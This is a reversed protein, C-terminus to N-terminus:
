FSQHVARAFEAATYSGISSQDRFCHAVFHTRELMELGRVPAYKRAFWSICKGCRILVCVASSALASTVYNVIHSGLVNNFTASACERIDAPLVDRDYLGTHVHMHMCPTHRPNGYGINYPNFGNGATAAAAEAAALREEATAHSHGDGTKRSGGRRTHRRSSSAAADDDGGNEVNATDDEAADQEVVEDVDEPEPAVIDEDAAGIDDNADNDEEDDTKKRRGIRCGRGGGGSSPKATQKSRGRAGGEGATNRKVPLSVNGPVYVGGPGRTNCLVIMAIGIWEMFKYNEEVSCINDWYKRLNTTEQQNTPTAAQRAAHATARATQPPQTSPASSAAASARAGDEKGTATCGTQPTSAATVEATYISAAVAEANLNVNGEHNYGMLYMRTSSALMARNTCELQLMNAIRSIDEIGCIFDPTFASTTSTSSAKNHTRKKAPPAKSSAQSHTTETANEPRGLVLGLFKKRESVWSGMASNRTWVGKDVIAFLLFPIFEALAEGTTEITPKPIRVMHYPHLRQVKQYYLCRVCPFEAWIDSSQAIDEVVEADPHALSWKRTLLLHVQRMADILATETQKCTQLNYGSSRLYDVLMNAADHSARECEPSLLSSVDVDTDATM